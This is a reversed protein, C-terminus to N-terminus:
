FCPLRRKANLTQVLLIGILSGGKTAANQDPCFERVHEERVNAETLCDM